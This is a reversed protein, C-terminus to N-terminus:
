RREASIVASPVGIGPVTGAGSFFLNSIKKHKNPPRFPGTQMLTHAVGGLANGAYSNYTSAFDSVSFISKYVIKDKLKIGAKEELYQLIYEGYKEKSAQTEELGCAVPVLIMVTHQGKPAVSPDTISPVNLYVSPDKPWSPKEFIEKFHEIWNKGFFINHHELGAVKGKVGLYMLFASPAFTRNQWYKEDYMRLNQDTFLREVHAMDANAVVAKTKIVGDKTRVGTIKQGETIIELVPTETQYKVGYETGIKVFSKVVESMGGMPYFTHMTFDVHSILSYLAPMNHPAGGLFVLTFQIIQQLKESTFFEAVYKQMSDFPRLMKGNKLLDWSFFDFISDINKYLVTRVSLEYKVRAEDLYDQLRQGAGKEIKEFVAKNHELNPLMDVHTKDPFIIRYQPNLKVLDLYDAPKKGFEAFFKEFVDPMMYWSPGMDFQFGKAKLVNARGGLVANKELVVVKKGDKALLAAASLGGFGGGIVVVDYETTRTTHVSKAQSRARSKKVSKM